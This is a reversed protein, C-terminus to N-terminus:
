RDLRRKLLRYGVGLGALAALGAGAIPLPAPPTGAFAPSAILAAGAAAFLTPLITKM